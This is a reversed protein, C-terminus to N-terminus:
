RELMDRTAWSAEKIDPVIYSFITSPM